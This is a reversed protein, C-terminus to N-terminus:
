EKIKKIKRMIIKYPETDSFKQKFYMGVDPFDDDFQHDRGEKYAAECMSLIDEWMKKKMEQIIKDM